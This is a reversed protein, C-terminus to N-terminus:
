ERWIKSLKNFADTSYIGMHYQICESEVPTLNIFKSIIYISKKSHGKSTNQNYSYTRTNENFIYSNTKCVDHLLAVVPLDFDIKNNLNLHKFIHYVAISHRALGCPEALHYKTSAPQEFFKNIELSEVIETVSYKSTYLIKLFEKKVEDNSM